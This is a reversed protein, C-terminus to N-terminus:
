DEPLCVWAARRMQCYLGCACKSRAETGCIERFQLVKWCEGFECTYGFGCDLNGTCPKQKGVGAVCKLRFGHARCVLGRGCAYGSDGTFACGDGNALRKIWSERVCTSGDCMGEKCHETCKCPLGIPSKEVCTGWGLQLHINCYLGEGCKENDKCERNKSLRKSCVGNLCFLSRICPKRKENCPKNITGLRRCHGFLCVLGDKCLYSNDCTEGLERRNSCRGNTCFLGPECMRYVGNCAEGKKSTPFCRKYGAPGVCVLGVNCRPGALECPEGPGISVLWSKVRNDLVNSARELYEQAPVSSFGASILDEVPVTETEQKPPNQNINRVLAWRLADQAEYRRKLAILQYQKYTALLCFIVALISSISTFLRARTLASM